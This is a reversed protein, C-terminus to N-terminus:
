GPSTTLIALGAPLAKSCNPKTVATNGLIALGIPLAIGYGFTKLSLGSTATMSFKRQLILCKSSSNKTHAIKYQIVDCNDLFVVM